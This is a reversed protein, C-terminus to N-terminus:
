RPIYPNNCREEGLTTFPGHGPLVQMAGPMPSKALKILSAQMEEDSGGFLDTRGIDHAFLTDGAFLMEGGLAFCCSGKTHGPTHLVLLPQGGTSMTIEMGDDLPIDVAFNPMVGNGTNSDAEHAAVKAGTKSKLAAVAGTHDFHGHTLLILELQAGCERLKEIYIGADAAPDIVAAKGNEVLLFTNTEFPPKALIHIVQMNEM